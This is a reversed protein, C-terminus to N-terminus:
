EGVSTKTANPLVIHFSTGKNLQSIISIEGKLKDVSQKVIYMGLGSGQSKETGRYFMDFIKPLHSEEIGIGNDSIDATLGKDNIIINIHLYPNPKGTDMYKFANSIINSFIIKLKLKDSVFTDGGEINIETYMKEFNELFELDKISMEILTRINVPEFQVEVRSAKAYSLMSKVFDDLRKISEGIKDIYATKDVTETDLHALHVLGLISSLPSRLDHSTKYVLQDLEFNRDSLEKMAINLETEREELAKNQIRLKENLELLKQEAKKLESIDRIAGDFYENGQSDKILYSSMLGWFEEGSKKKFRVEKNRISKKERLERVIDKRTELHYYLDKIETEIVEKASKYGFIEAFAENVYIMGKNLTSRYLGEKINRNISSLFEESHRLKEEAIKQHTIDRIAGDAYLKGNPGVLMSSTILGWFTTGDKRRFEVEMNTISKKSYLEERIFSKIEQDVYLRTTGFHNLEELTNFGFMDMFAQNVYEFQGEPVSRYIGEKINQNISELLVKSELLKDEALKQSSIDRFNSIIGAVEPEHLFNSLTTEAWMYHGNKHLLRQRFTISHGPSQLVKGFNKITEEHEEPHVFEDGSRGTLEEDTFGSVNKVSASAYIITGKVNYLVIGEHAKAM